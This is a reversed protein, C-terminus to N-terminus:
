LFNSSQSKNCKPSQQIEDSRNEIPFCRVLTTYNVASCLSTVWIVTKFPKNRWYVVCIRVSTRINYMILLKILRALLKFYNEEYFFVM